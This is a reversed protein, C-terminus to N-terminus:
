QGFTPFCDAMTKKHKNDAHETLSHCRSNAGPNSEPKTIPLQLFM